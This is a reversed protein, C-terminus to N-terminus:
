YKQYYKQILKLGNLELYFHKSLPHTINTWCTEAALFYHKESPYFNAWELSHMSEIFYSTLVFAIIAENYYKLLLPRVLIQLVFFFFVWKSYFSFAMKFIIHNSTSELVWISSGIARCVQFLLDQLLSEYILKKYFLINRILVNWDSSENLSLTIMTQM